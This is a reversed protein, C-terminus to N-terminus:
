SYVNKTHYRSFISPLHHHLEEADRSGPADRGPLLDMMMKMKKWSCMPVRKLVLQKPPPGRRTPTEDARKDGSSYNKKYTQPKTIM